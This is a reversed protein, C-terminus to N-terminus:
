ESWNYPRPGFWILMIAPVLVLAGPVNYWSIISLIIGWIFMWPVKLSGLKMTWNYLAEWDKNACKASFKPRIILLSLIITIISGVIAWIHSGIAPPPVPIGLFEYYPISAEWAVLIPPILAIQVVIALLSLILFVIWAWKGMPSVWSAHEWEGQQNM